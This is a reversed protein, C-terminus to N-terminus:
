YIRLYAEHWLRIGEVVDDFSDDFPYSSNYVVEKDQENNTSDIAQDLRQAALAFNRLENQVRAAYDRYQQSQKMALSDSMTMSGAGEWM